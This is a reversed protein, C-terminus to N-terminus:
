NKKLWKRDGGRRAERRKRSRMILTDLKNMLQEFQEKSMM